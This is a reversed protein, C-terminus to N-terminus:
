NGQQQNRQAARMGAFLGTAGILFLALAILSENIAFASLLVIVPAAMLALASAILLIRVTNM